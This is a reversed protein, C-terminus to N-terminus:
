GEKLNPKLPSYDMPGPHSERSALILGRRNDFDSARKYQDYSIGFKCYKKEKNKKSLDFSSNIKYAAPSPAHKFRM